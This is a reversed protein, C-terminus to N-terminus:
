KKTSSSKAEIQKATESSLPIHCHKLTAELLGFSYLPFTGYNNVCCSMQYAVPRQLYLWFAILTYTYLNNLVDTYTSCVNINNLLLKLNFM